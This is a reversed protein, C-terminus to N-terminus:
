VRSINCRCFLKRSWKAPPSWCFEVWVLKLVELNLESPDSFV